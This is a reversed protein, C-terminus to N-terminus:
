LTAMLEDTLELNHYVNQVDDDDEFKEIMALVKKASGVDLATTNLPIRQLEASKPEISLEELKNQMNGFDDFSSYILFLDGEKVVDEAGGDIAELIFEEEDIEAAEITFVGKRIFLFELSGNKGMSGNHKNFIARINSVTRTNNDTACEVFVAIGNPGYGEFTVEQYVVGDSGSGRNIAREITDKPMNAGKANQVALRLRSNAEPDPGAEKAAVTLEKIIKTFIKSRKADKAGKRHKITSWKSHGSM